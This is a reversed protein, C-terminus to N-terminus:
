ERYDDSSHQASLDDSICGKVLNNALMWIAFFRNPRPSGPPRMVPIPPDKLGWSTWKLKGEDNAITKFRARSYKYCPIPLVGIGFDIGLRKIWNQRPTEFDSAAPQPSIQSKPRVSDEAPKLGRDKNKNKYKGKAMATDPSLM